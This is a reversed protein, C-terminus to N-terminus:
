SRPGTYGAAPCWGNHPVGACPDPMPDQRVLPALQVSTQTPYTSGPPCPTIGADCALEAALTGSGTGAQDCPQGDVSQILPPESTLGAPDTNDYFCNRPNSSSENGLDGNTQNGFSGNNAFQNNAVVNGMAVFLCTMGEGVGGQCSSVPPPTETDPFDHTVIGWGGQNEVRNDVITDFEGGSIEIGAGVPAESAIGSGPVNANNNDHVYNREIITCSGGGVPCSGNQPPPADDNNLSNPVIGSRNQNFESDEIHLHGGSNTGSYGLASNEGHVHSLTANCDPCAGVYFSSDAMNSAYAHSILGPGQANSAFIGYEGHPDDATAYFTSTATIYSGTYSNMGITGSGDGGNWWIENGGEGSSLYNCVTLNEISSDDVKFVEIGNRDAVDQSAADSPCPNDASGDSGDVVVLNRDLGRIHVNPTTIYVGARDTAKEHYVGPWVLIWWARDAHVRRSQIHTVADTISAFRTGPPCPSTSGNCVRLVRGAEAPASAFVVFLVAVFVYSTARRLSAM